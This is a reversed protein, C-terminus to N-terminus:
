EDTTVLKGAKSMLPPASEKVKRKQNVYRYFVKENNKANRALNLELKVKTKSVGDDESLWATDM